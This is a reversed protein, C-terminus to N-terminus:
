NETIKRNLSRDLAGHRDTFGYSRQAAIRAAVAQEKTDFHGISREKGDVMIRARWKSRCPRWQVGPVGSGRSTHSTMNRMNIAHSVARLNAFRNNGRVGDRHDVDGEPWEGTEMAWIVRHALYLTGNIAGHAYGHNGIDTFAEQGANRANWANAKREASYSGSTFHSVDRLRWYLKGTDPDYRLLQRLLEASPLRPDAMIAGRIRKQDPEARHEVVKDPRKFGLMEASDGCCIADALM